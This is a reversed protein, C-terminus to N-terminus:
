NRYNDYNVYKIKKCFTNKYGLPEVPHNFILFLSAKIQNGVPPSRSGIYLYHLYLSREVTNRTISYLNLSCM